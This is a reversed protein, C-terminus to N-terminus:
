GDNRILAIVKERLGDLFRKLEDRDIFADKEGALLRSYKQETGNQSTHNGLFIDAEEGNLKDIGALFDQRWDVGYKERYDKELTNMGAGGHLVATVEKEGDTVNFFYTTAGPCHGPTSVARIRTNGFTFVDGDKVAVDATFLELHANVAHDLYSLEPRERFMKVDAEGLYTKAGSLATILATAGFHDYHGHTHFVAIIKSPDFGLSWLSHVLLTDTTPYNTDFLVPGAETDLLWSAGDRNGAFYLNGWVRFAPLRMEWPTQTIVTHVDRAPTENRNM